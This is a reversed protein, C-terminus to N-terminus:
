GNCEKILNSFGTFGLNFLADLSSLHSYFEKNNIQNYSPHEFEQFIFEINNKKFTDPKIFDLCGTGSYYKNCNVEKCLGLVLENSSLELLESKEKVLNSSFIFKIDLEMKEAILFIFENNFSSLFKHNKMYIKEIEPYVEKFYKSKGYAQKLTGLHKKIFNQEYNIETENILQFSQGSKKLPITLWQEKNNLLIKNRSSWSKGRTIQVHDFIIFTNTLSLKHFFGLWPFFDPQHIALKIM